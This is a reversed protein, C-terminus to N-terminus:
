WICQSKGNEYVMGSNLTAQLGIKNYIRQDGYLPLKNSVTAFRYSDRISVM